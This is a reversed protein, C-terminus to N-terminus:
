CLLGDQQMDLRNTKHPVCADLCLVAMAGQKARNPM